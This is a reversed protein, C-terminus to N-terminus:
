TFTPSLNFSKALFNLAFFSANAAKENNNKKFFPKQNM